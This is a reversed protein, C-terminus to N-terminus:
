AKGMMFKVCPIRKIADDNHNMLHFFTKKVLDTLGNSGKPYSAGIIIKNDNTERNPYIKTDTSIDYGPYHNPNFKKVNERHLPEMRNKVPSSPDAKM